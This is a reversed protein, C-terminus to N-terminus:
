RTDKLRDFKVSAHPDVKLGVSDYGKETIMKLNDETAIGADIVVIRKSGDQHAPKATTAAALQNIMAELTKCDATNGRYIASYKIFDEVNVVLALVILPCDSRKEKKGM